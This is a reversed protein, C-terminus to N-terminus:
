DSLEKSLKNLIDEVEVELIDKLQEGEKENFGWFHRIRNGPKGIGAEDHWFALKRKDPDFIDIEVNGLNKFVRHEIKSLMGERDDLELNVNAPNVATTQKRKEEIWLDTYPIFPRGDLDIGESTRKKIMRVGALGLKNLTTQREISRILRNVLESIKRIDGM